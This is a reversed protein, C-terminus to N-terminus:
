CTYETCQIQFTNSSTSTFTILFGDEATYSGSATITSTITTNDLSLHYSGYQKYAYANIIKSGYAADDTTRYNVVIKRSKGIAYDAPLSDLDLAFTATGNPNLTITKNKIALNDYVPNSRDLIHVNTSNFKAVDSTYGGDTFVNNALYILTTNCDNIMIGYKPVTIGTGDDKSNGIRTINGDIINKSGINNLKINYQYTSADLAGNRRLLNNTIINGNCQAGDLILGGWGSRDIINNSILNNQVNYTLIGWKTNWEIKNDTIINDNAGQELKFASGDNAFITNNIIRSDVPNTIASGSCGHISTGKIFTQRYNVDIGAAFYSIFCNEIKAGGGIGTNLRTEVDGKIALSEFKTNSASTFGNSSPFYLTTASAEDYKANATGKITIAKNSCNIASLFTYDGDQPIYLITSAPYNTVAYQLISANDAISSSMGLQKMNVYEGYTVLEAILSDVAFTTIGNATENEEADRILYLAGGGDNLSYFGYTQAYSGAVLNTATQMESVSDFTWAVNAQIYATIIEQLTGDEVMQDLKNNIEEQVDLNAFYNEVYSKLDKVIQIFYDTTAANNNIVDVLNDQMWKWLACLAEYYSLSDDFMTPIIASCYRVFPPVPKSYQVKNQDM